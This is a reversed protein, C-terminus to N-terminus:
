MCEVMYRWTQLLTSRHDNWGVGVSGSRRAEVAATRMAKGRCVRSPSHQEWGAASRMLAKVIM